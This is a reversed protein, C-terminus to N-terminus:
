FDTRSRIGAQSTSSPPGEQTHRRPTSMASRLGRPRVGGAAASHNGQPAYVARDNTQLAPPTVLRGGFGQPHDLLPSFPLIPPFAPFSASPVPSLTVGSHSHPPTSPASLKSLRAPSPTSLPLQGLDGTTGAPGRPSPCSVCATLARHLSPPQPAPWAWPVRPCRTLVTHSQLPPCVDSHTQGFWVTALLHM